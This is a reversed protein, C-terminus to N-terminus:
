NKLPTVPLPAYGVDFGREKWKKTAYEPFEDIKEAGCIRALEEGTRSLMVKGIPVEVSLAPQSLLTFQAGFYSTKTKMSLSKFTFNGISEYRLLGLTELHLLRYLGIGHQAYISDAEEFIVPVPRDDFVWNFACLSTFLDADSKELMSVLEITRRSFSGPLNTQGALIKSWLSQMEQNSILRCKDFFNALWDNDLDEAKADPKIDQIANATISEMNEQKKSEETIMRLFTRQEIDSVEIQALARIKAAEAEAEAMRMVYRPQYLMGVAASIKKILISVPKSLEGLNIISSSSGM